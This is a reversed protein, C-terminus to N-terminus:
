AYISLKGNRHGGRTALHWKGCVNCKYVDHWIGKNRGIYKNHENAETRSNFTTKCTTCM